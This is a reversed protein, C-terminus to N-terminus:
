PFGWINLAANSLALNGTARQLQLNTLKTLVRSLGIGEPSGIEGVRLWGLKWMGHCIEPKFLLWIRGEVEDVKRRFEDVQENFKKLGKKVTPLRSLLKVADILQSQKERGLKKFADGQMQAVMTKLVKVKSHFSFIPDNQKLFVSAQLWGSLCAGFNLVQSGAATSDLPNVSSEFCFIVQNWRVVQNQAVGQWTWAWGMRLIGLGVSWPWRTPPAVVM